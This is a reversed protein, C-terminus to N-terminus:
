ENNNIVSKLQHKCKEPVIQCHSNVIVDTIHRWLRYDKFDNFLQFIKLVKMMRGADVRASVTVKFNTM